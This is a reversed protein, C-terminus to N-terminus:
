SNNELWNAALIALDSMDVSGDGNIDGPIKVPTQRECPGMDVVPHGNFLSVGTDAAAPDDGYRNLGDVDWPVADTTHGDQDLDAIDVTYYRNHGADICPSGAGLRLNDDLTGPTDDDGDPDVFCPDQDINGDNDTGLSTVWGAGSAGCGQINSYTYVPTTNTPYNYVEDGTDATNGWLICNTILPNCSQNYMAGGNQDANNNYILTNNLNLSGNYTCIGGGYHDATNTNILCNAITVDSGSNFIAGGHVGAVNAFISCNVIYPRGSSNFIAAGNNSVTQRCIVCDTIRAESSTANAIAGGNSNTVGPSDFTCRSILPAGYILYAGGGTSATNDIFECDSFTCQYGCYIGGGYFAASNATFTCDTFTAGINTACNVAGGSQTANNGTFTCSAASGSSNSLIALAGGYACSNNTFGCDTLVIEGGSNNCVAGGKGSVSTSTNGSFTCRTIAAHSVSNYIGGCQEAASNGTFTSDSITLDSDYYNYIGGGYYTATNTTFTCHDATMACHDNYIAGASMSSTNGTFECESVTVHGVNNYMAGGYYSAANGTFVCHAVVLCANLNYMGGGLTYGGGDHGSGNTITFGDVLTNPDCGDSTIVSGAQGGDITTTAAGAGLLAVGNKLALNEIYTGAAVHVTDGYTSTDIVAQISEGPNVYYDAGRCVCTIIFFHVFVLTTTFCVFTRM